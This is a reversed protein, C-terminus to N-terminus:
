IKQEKNQEAILQDMRAEIALNAVKIQALASSLVPDAALTQPFYDELADAAGYKNRWYAWM